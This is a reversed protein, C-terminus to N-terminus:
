RRVRYRRPAVIVLVARLGERYLDTLTTQLTVDLQAEDEIAYRMVIIGGFDAPPYDLVNAFDLDATLLVADLKVALAIIDTDPADADLYETSLRVDYGWAKLLRAYRRPVCHDLLLSM